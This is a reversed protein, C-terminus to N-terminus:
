VVSSGSRGAAVVMRLCFIFKQGEHPFGRSSPSRNQEPQPIRRVSRFWGASLLGGAGCTWSAARGRGTLVFHEWQPASIATGCSRIMLIFRQGFHLDRNRATEASGSASLPDDLDRAPTRIPVIIWSPFIDASMFILSSASAELGTAIAVTRHECQLVGIDMGTVSKPFARFHGTHLDTKRGLAGPALAEKRRSFEASSDAKISCSSVIPLGPQAALARVKKKRPGTANKTTLPIIQFWTQRYMTRAFIRIWFPSGVDATQLSTRAQWFDMPTAHAIARRTPAM